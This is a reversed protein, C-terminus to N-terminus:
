RGAVRQEDSGAADLRGQVVAKDVSALDPLSSSPSPAHSRDYYAYDSYDFSARQTAPLHVSCGTLMSAAMAMTLAAAVTAVSNLLRKM